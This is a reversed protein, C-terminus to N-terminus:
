LTEKPSPINKGTSGISEKNKREIISSSGRLITSKEFCNLAEWILGKEISNPEEGV